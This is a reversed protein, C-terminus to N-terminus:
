FAYDLNAGGYISGGVNSYLANKGDKDKIYFNGGSSYGGFVEMEFRMFREYRLNLEAGMSSYSFVSRPQPENKGTRFREKMPRGKLSLRWRDNLKYQISYDMPFIALFTWKKNPSFDIGIVPYVEQGEMGKYGFAGVHYHWKRHPQYSGWILADYLSYQSARQMHKVDINYNARLIWRWNEIATTYFTLGFQLYYFRTENFKPNKDWNLEFTNWEVRPFFYSTASVPLLMYLFANAKNFRLDGGEPVNTVSAPSFTIYNGGMHIPHYDWLSQSPEEKLPVEPLNTDPLIGDDAFSIASILLFFPLLRKM